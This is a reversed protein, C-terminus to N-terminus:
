YTYVHICMHRQTYTHLKECKKETHELLEYPHVFWHAYSMIRRLVCLTQAGKIGKKEGGSRIQATDGEAETTEEGGWKTNRGKKTPSAIFQPWALMSVTKNFSESQEEFAGVSKEELSSM